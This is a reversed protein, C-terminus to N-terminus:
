GIDTIVIRTIAILDELLEPKVDSYMTRFSQGKTTDFRKLVAIVDPDAEFEDYIEEAQEVSVQNIFGYLGDVLVAFRPKNLRTPEVLVLKGTEDHEFLLGQRNERSLNIEVDDSDRAEALIASALLYVETQAKKALATTALPHLAHPTQEIDSQLRYEYGLANAEAEFIVTPQGTRSQYVQQAYTQNADIINSVNSLSIVERTQALTLTFPDTTDLRQLNAKGLSDELMDRQKIEDSAALVRGVRMEELGQQVAVKLMVSSLGTFDHATNSINEEHLISQALINSLSEKDRIDQVFYRGFEALAEEFAEVDDPNFVIEQAETDGSKQPADLRLVLNDNVDFIWELQKLGERLADREIVYTQYWADALRDRRSDNRDHTIYTRTVLERRNEERVQIEAQRAVLKQYLSDELVDIGVKEALDELSSQMAKTIEIWNSIQQGASEGNDYSALRSAYDPLLTNSLYNLYNRAIGLRGSRKTVIDSNSNDGNLIINLQMKLANKWAQDDRTEDVTLKKIARSVNSDNNVLLSNFIARWYDDLAPLTALQKVLELVQAQSAPVYQPLADNEGMLLYHILGRSYRATIENLIEAFPLRYQYIGMAGLMMESRNNQANETAQAINNRWDGFTGRKTASDLWLAISDALAPYIGVEPEASYVAGGQEGQGDHIFTDDFLMQNWTSNLEQPSSDDNSYRMDFNAGHALQFRALERTFAATNIPRSVDQLDRRASLATETIFHGTLRLTDVDLKTAVIRRIIYAVDLAMGSGIDDSTDTVIIANLRGDEVVTDSSTILTEWVSKKTNRMNGRLNNILALRGLMRNNRLGERPDLQRGSGIFDTDLWSLTPDSEAQEAISSLSDQFEILEHEDLLVGNFRDKEYMKDQTNPIIALLRINSPMEGLGADILTNKLQTLVNWGSRGLGIIVTPQPEWLVRIGNWIPLNGTGVWDGREGVPPIDIVPEPDAKPKMRCFFWALAMLVLLPILFPWLPILQSLLPDREPPIGWAPLHEFIGPNSAAPLPLLNSTAGNDDVDVTVIDYNPDSRTTNFALSTGDSNWSPWSDSANATNDGIPFVDLNGSAITALDALWIDANPASYSSETGTHNTFALWRGDPSISPYYNLGPVNSQTILPSITAGDVSAVWIESIGTISLGYDIRSADVRVFAISNGDPNWTPMTAAFGDSATVVTLPPSGNQLDYVILEGQITSVVVKDGAPSIDVYIANGDGVYEIDAEDENNLNAILLRGPAGGEIAALRGADVNSTHCGVCGQENVISIQVPNDDESAYENTLFIGGTSNGDLRWFYISEPVDCIYGVVPLLLLWVLFVAWLAAGSKFLLCLYDFWERPDKDRFDKLWRSIFYLALLLALLAGVWPIWDWLGPACFSSTLDFGEGAVQTFNTAQDSGQVFAPPTSTPTTTPLPTSTPLITSTPAPTPTPPLAQVLPGQASAVSAESEACAILNVQATGVNSPNSNLAEVEFSYRLVEGRDLRDILSWTITDASVSAADPIINRDRLSYNATDVTFSVTIDEGSLQPPLITSFTFLTDTLTNATTASAYLNPDAIQQLLPADLTPSEIAIISIRLGPLRRRMTEVTALVEQTDPASDDGDTVIVLQPTANAAFNRGNGDLVALSANLGDLLNAGDSLAINNLTNATYNSDITFALQESTPNTGIEDETLQRQTQITATDGYSLVAVQDNQGDNTDMNLNGLFGSLGQQAVTLRSAGTDLAVQMSSSADVLMVLDIPQSRSLSACEAGTVRLNVTMINQGPALIPTQEAELEISVATTAQASTLQAMAMILLILLIARYNLRKKIIFPSATQVFARM